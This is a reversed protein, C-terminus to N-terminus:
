RSHTHPQPLGLQKKSRHDHRSCLTSAAPLSPRHAECAHHPRLQHGRRLPESPRPLRACCKWGKAHPVTAFADAFKLEMALGTAWRWAAGPATEVRRQTRWVDARSRPRAVHDGHGGCTVKPRRFRSAVVARCQTDQIPIDM